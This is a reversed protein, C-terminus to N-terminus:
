ESYPRLSLRLDLGEAALMMTVWMLVPSPMDTSGATDVSRAADRAPADAKSADSSPADVPPAADAGTPRDAPPAADALPSTSDVQVFDAANDSKGDTASAGDPFGSHKVSASRCALASLSLSFRLLCRSGHRSFRPSRSRCRKRAKENSRRVRSADVVM